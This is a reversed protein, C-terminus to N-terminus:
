KQQEQGLCKRGFPKALSTDRSQGELFLHQEISINWNPSDLLLLGSQSLDPNKEFPV